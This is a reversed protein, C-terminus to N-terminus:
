LVQYITRYIIGPIILAEFYKLAKIIGPIMDYLIDLIM